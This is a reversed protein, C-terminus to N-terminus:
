TQNPCLRPKDEALAALRSTDLCAVGLQWRRLFRALKFTQTATGFRPLVRFLSANTFLINLHKVLPNESINVVVQVLLM